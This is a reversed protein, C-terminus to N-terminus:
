RSSCYSGSMGISRRPSASIMTALCRLPGVPETWRANRLWYARNSFMDLTYRIPGPQLANPRAVSEGPLENRRPNEAVVVCCATIVRASHPTDPPIIAVDGARLTREM